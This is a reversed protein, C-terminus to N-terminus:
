IVNMATNMASPSSYRAYLDQDGACGRVKMRSVHDAVACGDSFVVGVDHHGVVPTRPTTAVTSVWFSVSAVGAGDPRPCPCVMKGM